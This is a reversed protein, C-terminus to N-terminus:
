GRLHLFAEWIGVGAVALGLALGIQALPSHGLPLYRNAGPIVGEACVLLIELALAIQIIAALM